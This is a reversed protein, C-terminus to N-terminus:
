NESNFNRKLFNLGTELSISETLGKRIVMGFSMGFKPQNTYQIGNNSIEQKGASFFEVPIIPKLQIGFTTVREQAESKFAFLLLFLYLFLKIKM